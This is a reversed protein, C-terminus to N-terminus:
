SECDSTTESETCVDYGLGGNATDNGESAHLEDNGPGGALSDDGVGTAVYDDGFGADVEDVENRGSTTSIKDDGAGGFILNGGRGVHIQNAFDTGIISAGETNAAFVDEIQAISDSGEGTAFGVKLDLELFSDLEKFAVGDVGSEGDLVDNGKQGAILDSGAGGRITDPGPGGMLVNNDNGGKITDGHPSGLVNSIDVLTDRGEGTALGHELNLDIPGRSRSYDVTGVIRPWNPEPYYCWGYEYCDDYYEDYNDKPEVLVGEIWDDGPGGSLRSPSPGPAAYLSDAGAGGRLVEGSMRDSGPGGLITDEGQGACVFDNGGRGFVRDDGDGAWIVDSGPTGVLRDDGSTGVITSTKGFCGRAAAASGHPVAVAAALLCLSILGRASNTM